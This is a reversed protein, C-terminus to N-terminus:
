QHCFRCNDGNDPHPPPFHCTRCENLTATQHIVNAPLSPALGHSPASIHCVGCSDNLSLPLHCSTCHRNLPAGFTATHSRPVEQSHCRDCTDRTHCIFCRSRDIGAMLGHGRGRWYANHSRPRENLHCDDCSGQTHCLVCRDITRDGTAARWVPGHQITWATTHSSPPTDKGLEMHCVACDGSEPVEREHCDTCGDMTMKMDSRIASSDAVSGHCARCSEEGDAAHIAHSFIIEDAQRGAHVWKPEGDVFFPALLAAEEEDEPDHCDSCFAYDPMSPETDDGYPEHCYLCEMEYEAVHV